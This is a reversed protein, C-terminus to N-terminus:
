TQTFFLGLVPCLYCNRSIFSLPFFISHTFTSMPSFGSITNSSIFISQILVQNQNKVQPWLVSCSGYPHLFGPSTLSQKCLFFDVYFTTINIIVDTISFFRYPQYYHFCRHFSLIIIIIAIIIVTIIIILVFTSHLYRQYSYYHYYYLLISVIITM